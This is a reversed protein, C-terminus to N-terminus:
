GQPAPAANNPVLQSTPTPQPHAQPATPPQAAAANSKALLSASRIYTRLMEMRKPELNQKFGTWYYQTAMKLCLVPTNFPEVTAPTGDDVIEDLTMMICDREASMMDEVRDLDSFNLLNRGTDQDIFGGQILETITQIKGTVDAPLSSVPDVHLTFIDDPEDLAIDDWDILELRSKTPVKVEYKSKGHEKRIDKLVMLSLDSIDIATAEYDQGTTMFRQTSIDNLSRIAEGSTVGPAKEGQASLQSIGSLDYARQFLIQIEQYVEPQVLPPLIWEPKQASELIVGTMDGDTLYDTPLQSGFPLWIKYHGGIRLTRQVYALLESLETQIPETQEVLGQGDFFSFPRDCYTFETFPFRDHKYEEFLLAGSTLTIAHCGDDGDGDSPLHWSERITVPDGLHNADYIEGMDMLAAKDIMEEFEDGWMKHLTRREVTRVRHLQEPYRQTAEVEDYWIEIPLVREHKVRAHHDFAHLYGKGWILSDKFCQRMLKQTKNEYFVGESFKTRNQAKKQLKYDGGTTIWYPSPKNQAIKSALTDVVSQTVNYTLTDRYRRQYSKLRSLSTGWAMSPPLNGYLRAQRHFAHVRQRQQTSWFTLNASISMAAEDPDEEWWPNGSARSEEPSWGKRIPEKKTETQGGVM